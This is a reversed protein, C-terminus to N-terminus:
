HRLRVRLCLSDSKVALVVLLGGTLCTLSEQTKVNSFTAGHNPMVQPVPLMQTVILKDFSSAKRGHLDYM